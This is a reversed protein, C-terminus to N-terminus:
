ALIALNGVVWLCDPLCCFILIFHVFAQQFGGSDGLLHTSLSIRRFELAILM